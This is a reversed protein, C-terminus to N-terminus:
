GHSWVQKIPYLKPSIEFFRSHAIISKVGSFDRENFYLEALYPQIYNSPAKGKARAQDIAQHFEAKAQQINGNQFHVRGMLFHLDDDGPVIELAIQANKEVESLLFRELVEDALEFYVLEWYLQALMKHANFIVSEETSTKLKHLLTHIEEHIKHELKDIVSFSVLRIEDNKSSLLRKILIINNRQLNETLLSLAALKLNTPVAHQDFIEHMAGEGFRRKIIPFTTRFPTLDITHFTSRKQEYYISRFIIAFGVVAVAGVVPAMLSFALFVIFANMFQHPYRQKLLYASLASAGASLLIHLTLLLPYGFDLAYETMTLVKTITRPSSPM